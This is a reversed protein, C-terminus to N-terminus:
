ESNAATYLAHESADPLDRPRLGLLPVIRTIADAAVPVATWGATRLPQSQERNVPEDLAIVLVYEPESAPFVAAFTAIVKDRAYGGNPLPKDATGTKGGIEYGPIDAFSATGRVVTQRLM